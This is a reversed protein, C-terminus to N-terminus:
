RQFGRALGHSTAIMTESPANMSTSSVVITFTERGCMAPLRDVLSNL